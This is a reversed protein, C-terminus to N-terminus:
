RGGAADLAVFHFTSGHHQAESQRVESPDMAGVLDARTMRIFGSLHAAVLKAKFEELPMEWVPSRGRMYRWISGIFARDNHFRAVEPAAAAARVAQALTPLDVTAPPGNDNAVAVAPEVPQVDSQRLALRAGTATVAKPQAGFVWRTLLAQSLEEANARKAGSARVVLLKRWTREDVRAEPDVLDRLLYRRVAAADFKKKSDVGLARWALMDVVATLSLGQTELGHQGGLLAAALDDTSRKKGRAASKGLVLDPLLESKVQRFSRVEPLAALGLARSLARKGKSTIALPREHVYGDIACSRIAEEVLTTEEPGRGNTCAVIDQVVKAKTPAKKPQPLLRALVLLKMRENHQEHTIDTM